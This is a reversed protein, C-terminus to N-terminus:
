CFWPRLWPKPSQPRSKTLRFFNLEPARKSQAALFCLILAKIATKAISTRIQNGSSTPASFVNRSHLLFACFWPRLWPKPSQPRSKTLRFFNLEPARKSQAALFCLILAKIATKAISTRIQNGSSTPASFVNRSHLLFACFWPRLWPKPSQPRSKTLRFFNLESARKSM